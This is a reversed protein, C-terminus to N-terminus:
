KFVRNLIDSYDELQILIFMINRVKGGNCPTSKRALDTRESLTNVGRKM